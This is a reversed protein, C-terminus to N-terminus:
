KVLKFRVTINGHEDAGGRDMAVLQAIGVGGERTKFAFTVPLDAESSVLPRQPRADAMSNTLEEASM